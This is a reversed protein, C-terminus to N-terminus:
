GHKWEQWIAFTMLWLAIVCLFALLNNLSLLLAIISLATHLAFVKDAMWFFRQTANMRLEGRQYISRWAPFIFHPVGANQLRKNLVVAKGCFYRVRYAFLFAARTRFM